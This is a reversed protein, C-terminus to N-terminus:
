AQIRTVKFTGNSHEAYTNLERGYENSASFGWRAYLHTLVLPTDSAIWAKLAVRAEQETVQGRVYYPYDNEVRVLQILEGHRLLTM